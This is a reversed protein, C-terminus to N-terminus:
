HSVVNMKNEEFEAWLTEMKSKQEEISMIDRVRQKAKTRKKGPSKNKLADNIYTIEQKTLKISHEETDDLLRQLTNRWEELEGINKHCIAKQM